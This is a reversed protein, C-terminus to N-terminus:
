FGTVPVGNTAVVYSGLDVSVIDRGGNRIAEILVGADQNVVTDERNDKQTQLGIPLVGVIAVLAFAIVGLAIAIEVMTFAAERRAGILKNINTHLNMQTRAQDM